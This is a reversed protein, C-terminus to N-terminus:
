IRVELKHSQYSDELRTGLGEGWELMQQKCFRVSCLLSFPHTCVLFEWGCAPVLYLFLLDQLPIPCKSHQWGWVFAYCGPMIPSLCEGRTVFLQLGRPCYILLMAGRPCSWLLSNFGHVPCPLDWKWFHIIQSGCLDDLHSIDDGHRNEGRYFQFTSSIMWIQIIQVMWIQVIKYTM